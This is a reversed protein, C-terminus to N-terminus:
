LRTWDEDVVTSEVLSEIGRRLRGSAASSSIGVEEALEELTVARPQSFYGMEYAAVLLDEQGPTLVGHTADGRERALNTIRFELGEGVCFERLERLAERDPARLEFQWYGSTATTELVQIGLDDAKPTVKPRDTTVRVVYIRRRHKHAVEDTSVVTPDSRLSAEFAEFDDYKVELAAAGASAQTYLEVVADPHDLLTQGASTGEAHLEAAALVSM